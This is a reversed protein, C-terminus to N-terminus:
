KAEAPKSFPDITDMQKRAMMDDTAASSITKRMDATVKKPFGGLAAVVNSPFTDLSNDFTRILDIKTTQRSQFEKYGAEIAVQLKDMIKVDITPNQEKIWQVGAQSGTQGYRGTMSVEIAKIVMDGYKEVALGQSRMQNFISTHVNKLEEHAAVIGNEQRALKNYTVVFTMLLVGLVGLVALFGLNIGGAPKKATQHTNM